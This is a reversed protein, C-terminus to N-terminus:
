EEKEEYLQKVRQSIYTTLGKGSAALQKMREVHIQGASAHTFRYIGDGHFAVRIFDPGTEYETVGSDHRGDGYPKMTSNYVLQRFRPALSRM